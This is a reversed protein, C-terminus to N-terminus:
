GRDSIGRGAFVAWFSELLPVRGFSRRKYSEPENDILTAHNQCLLIGNEISSREEPTMSRDYRPGGESAATIHAAVGINLVKPLSEQPGSTLQDCEPHPRLAEDDFQYVFLQAM